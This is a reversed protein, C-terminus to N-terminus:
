GMLVSWAQPRTCQAGTVAITLTTVMFYLLLCADAALLRWRWKADGQGPVTLV